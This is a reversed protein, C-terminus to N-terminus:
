EHVYLLDSLTKSFLDVKSVVKRRESFSLQSDKHKIRFDRMRKTAREMFKGVKDFLQRYLKKRKSVANVKGRVLSIQFDIKDFLDLWETLKKDAFNSGFMKHLRTLLLLARKALGHMMGSDTPWSTNASVSTSDIFVKEFIDMEDERIM